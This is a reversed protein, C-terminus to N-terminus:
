AFSHRPKKGIIQVEALIREATITSNDADSRYSCYDPATSLIKAGTGFTNIEAASTPAYFSVSPVRQSIALHLALSDSTILSDLGKVLGAFEELALTNIVAVGTASTLADLYVQDDRGGLAVCALGLARLARVLEVAERLPLSKSQWRRGASLNLGVTWTGNAPVAQRLAAMGRKEAAPENFFGPVDIGVGLMHSFIQDHSLTNMRKMEDAREKGFRSILGMDFWPNTDETYHIAGDRIYTGSIKAARVRQGITCSETEDDLSIVWDFGVGGLEEPLNDGTCRDAPVVTELLPNFRLLNMASPVTVWTVSVGGAFKEHLGPLLYSTRIVDGLAGFKLILVRKKSM